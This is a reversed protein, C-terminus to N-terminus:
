QKAANRTALRKTVVKNTKGKLNDIYTIATDFILDWQSTNQHEMKMLNTAYITDRKRTMINVLDKINIKERNRSWSETIANIHRGKHKLGFSDLIKIIEDHLASAQEIEKENIKLTGNRLETYQTKQKIITAAYGLKIAGKNNTLEHSKGFEALKIYNENGDKIEMGVYDEMYWSRKRQKDKIIDIEKEEPINLYYVKIKSDKPISGDNIAYKFAALRHQGDIVNGTVVNVEIPSLYKLTDASVIGKKIDKVHKECLDRNLHHDKFRNVTEFSADRVTGALSECFVSEKKVQVAKKKM